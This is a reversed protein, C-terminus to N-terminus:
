SANVVAECANCQLVKKRMTLIWGILGGFCSVILMIVSGIGVVGIAVGNVLKGSLYKSKADHFTKLQQKSLGKEEQATLQKHDMFKEILPQPINADELMTKVESNINENTQSGGVGVTLLLFLSLLLCFISPILIVYGIIVIPTSLRFKKRKKLIGQGCIQCQPEVYSM